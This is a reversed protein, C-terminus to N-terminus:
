SSLVFSCLQLISGYEKYFDTLATIVDSICMDCDKIFYKMIASMDFTWDARDYGYAGEAARGAGACQAAGDSVTDAYETFM